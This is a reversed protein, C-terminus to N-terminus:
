LSHGRDFATQVFGHTFLLGGSFRIDDLIKPLIGFFRSCNLIRFENSGTEQLIEKTERNGVFDEPFYFDKYKHEGSIARRLISM